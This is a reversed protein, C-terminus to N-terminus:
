TVMSTPGRGLTAGYLDIIEDAHVRDAMVERYM